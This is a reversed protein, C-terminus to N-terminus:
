GGEKMYMVRQMQYNVRVMNNVTKGNDKTNIGMKIFPPVMGMRNIIEGIGLIYAEKGITNSAM